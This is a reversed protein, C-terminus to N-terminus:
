ERRRRESGHRSGSSILARVKLPLDSHYVKRRQTHTHAYIPNAEYWIKRSKSVGTPRWSSQPYRHASCDLPRPAACAQRRGPSAQRRGPERGGTETEGPCVKHPPSTALRHVHVVGSCMCVTARDSPAWPRAINRIRYLSGPTLHSSPELAADRARGRHAGAAPSVCVSRLRPGSHTCPCVPSPPAGM